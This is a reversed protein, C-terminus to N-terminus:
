TQQLPNYDKVSLGFTWALGQKVSIIEPPVGLYYTKNTSHDQLKLFKYQTDMIWSGMAAGSVMMTRQSIAREFMRTTDIGDSRFMFSYLTHKKGNVTEEDIVKLNPLVNFVYEFGYYKILAARQEQNKLKIIEIPKANKGLVFKDFDKKQFLVGHLFHLEYEFKEYSFKPVGIAPGDICHLRGNNDKFSFLPILDRIASLHQNQLYRIVIDWERGSVDVM